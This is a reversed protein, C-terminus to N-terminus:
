GWGPVIRRIPHDADANATFGQEVCLTCPDTAPLFVCECFPGENLPDFAWGSWPTGFRSESGRGMVAELLTIPV